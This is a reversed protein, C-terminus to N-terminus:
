TDLAFSSFHKLELYIDDAPVVLAASLKMGKVDGHFLLANEQSTEAEPSLHLCLLQIESSEDLGCVSGCGRDEQAEPTAWLTSFPLGLCVASSEQLGDQLQARGAAGSLVLWGEGVVECAWAM